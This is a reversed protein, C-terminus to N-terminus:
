VSVGTTVQITKTDYFEPRQLSLGSEAMKGLLFAKSLPPRQYPMYSEDGVLNIVGEYGLARASVAAQFGAQGAGVIVLGNAMRGYEMLGAQSSAILAAPRPQDLNAVVRKGARGARA